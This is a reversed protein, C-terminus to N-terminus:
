LIICDGKHCNRQYAMSDSEQLDNRSWCDLSLECDSIVKSPSGGRATEGFILENQENYGNLVLHQNLDKVLYSYKTNEEEEDDESISNVSSSRSPSNTGNPYNSHNESNPSHPTSSRSSPSSNTDCYL